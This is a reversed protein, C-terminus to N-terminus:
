MAKYIGNAEIFVLVSYGLFLPLTFIGNALLYYATAGFAVIAATAYAIVKPNVKPLWGVLLRKVMEIVGVIAPASVIAIILAVVEKSFM